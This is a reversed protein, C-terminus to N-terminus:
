YVFTISMVSPILSLWTFNVAEDNYGQLLPNHLPSKKDLCFLRTQNKPCGIDGARDRSRIYNHAHSMDAQGLIGKKREEKVGGLM